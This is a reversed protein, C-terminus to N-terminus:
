RTYSLNPVGTDSDPMGIVYKTIVDFRLLSKNGMSVAMHLALYCCFLLYLIGIIVVLVLAAWNLDMENVTNVVFYTNIGIVVVSLGTAIM